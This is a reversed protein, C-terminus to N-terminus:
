IHKCLLGSSDPCTCRALPLSVEHWLDAHTASQVRGEGADATSLGPLPLPAYICTRKWLSAQWVLLYLACEPAQVHPLYLKSNETDAEKIHTQARNRCCNRNYTDPSRSTCCHLGETKEGIDFWYKLHIPSFPTYLEPFFMYQM